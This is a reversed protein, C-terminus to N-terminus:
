IGILENMELTDLDTAEIIAEVKSKWPKPLVSLIKSVIKRTSVLEGLSYIESLIVIFRIHM